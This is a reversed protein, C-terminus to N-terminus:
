VAKGKSYDRLLGLGRVSEVPANFVPFVNTRKFDKIYKREALFSLAIPKNFEQSMRKIFSLIQEPTGIGDGFIKAIEPEYMFSLVVGDINDLALCRNLIFALAKIDHVDGFDMPNSMRIVGARRFGEIQDMLERPLPPCEFGYRECADGLIVAFGGSMSIVALRNGRLPPLQLARAAVTMQHIDEVRVIGAQRLACDAIRDDNSLAATHSYAIKSATKSVNSKFIVIPKRSTKALRTLERGDEISELYMHIQETDEDHILYNLFDIENLDLKNGMSIIKSFGVHQESFCYACQTTVGGSQVILGVPGKKFRGVQMPNFPTCLGSEPCIVGICNPGIFRIGYRGAVGVLDSEAPNDQDDFERFGGTSIVAHHIGKQGCMELTEAVFKAPVLIVALDIGQPLSRPDTIIRQGHVEGPERGVPYIKGTFGLELSNSIINKGLNRSNAAVGFVAFEAPHFFKKM